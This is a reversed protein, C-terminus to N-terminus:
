KRQSVELKPRSCEQATHGAQNCNSCKVERVDRPPGARGAARPTPGAKKKPAPGARRRQFRSVVLAYRARADESAFTKEPFDDASPMEALPEIDEEQEASAEHLASGWSGPVNHIGDAVEHAAINGGPLNGADIM